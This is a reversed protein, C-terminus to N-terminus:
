NYIEFGNAFLRDAVPGYEFAGIDCSAGFVRAVGRQDTALPQGNNPDICNVGADIMGTPPVLAVTRTTGGNDKLIGLENLSGLLGVSGTSGVAATCGASTGLFNNAFVGLIGACDSYDPAGALYNGAVVTNRINVMGSVFIGAGDGSGDADADAQNYVITANFLAAAASLFNAIGGGNGNSSNAAVTSNALNLGASNAIAGGRGSAANGSLTSNSIVVLAYAGINVAGGDGGSTNGSLTSHDIKLTGAGAGNFSIGGGAGAAHNSALLCRDLDLSSGSDIFVAGGQGSTNNILTSDKLTLVQQFNYIAGAFGNNATNNSLTSQNVTLQGLNMIAGGAAFAQNHDLTVRTLTLTSENYIGGGLYASLASNYSVISDSLVLSAGVNYIAGGNKSSVSGNTITVGSIVAQRAGEVSFVRDIGNADIITTAAGAGSITIVPNGSLPSTLNLDGGDPGDDGLAPRVLTYPGAPLVITSSAGAVNAQMVAARLTCTNAATHCLGDGLDDDIGDATSNVNFVIPSTAAFLPPGSLLSAAALLRTAMRLGTKAGSQMRVFRTM